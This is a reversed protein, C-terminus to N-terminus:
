RPALTARAPAAAEALPAHREALMALSAAVMVALHAGGATLPALMLPWCALACWAGQDLGYALSDGWAAAGFVRLRPARRQRVHAVRRVPSFWWAAALGFALALAWVGLAATLLIAALELVLGAAMWVAAYSLAFLGIAGLRRRTLSGTWLRWIPGHLLLPTMALLMALWALALTAWPALALVVRLNGAAWAIEGPGAGGCLVHFAGGRRDLFLVFLWGCLSAALLAPGPARAARAAVATLWRRV